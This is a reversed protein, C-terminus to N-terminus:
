SWPMARTEGIYAPHVHPYPNEVFGCWEYFGKRRQSISEEQDTLRWFWLSERNQWCIWFANDMGIAVCSLFFM